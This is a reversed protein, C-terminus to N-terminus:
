HAIDRMHLASRLVFEFFDETTMGYERAAAELLANGRESFYASVEASGDPLEVHEFEIDEETLGITAFTIFM